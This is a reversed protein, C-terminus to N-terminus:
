NELVTLEYIYPCDHPFNDWSKYNNGSLAKIMDIYMDEKIPPINHEKCYKKNSEQLFKDQKKWEEILRDRAKFLEREAIELTACALGMWNISYLSLQIGSDECNGVGMMYIKM